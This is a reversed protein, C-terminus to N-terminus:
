LGYHFPLEMEPTSFTERSSVHCAMLLSSTQLSFSSKLRPTRTLPVRSVRNGERRESSEITEMSSVQMGWMWEEVAWKVQEHPLVLWVPWTQSDSLEVQFSQATPWPLWEGRAAGSCTLCAAAFGSTSIVCLIELSTTFSPRRTARQNKPFKLNHLHSTNDKQRVACGM